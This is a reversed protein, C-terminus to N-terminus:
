CSKVADVEIEFLLDDRCITGGAILVSSSDIQNTLCYDIFYHVHNMDRFYAIARVMNEWGYKENDMISKVVKMTHNIQMLVNGPYLTIGRSDISATGSIILKNSTKHNIEVARSFSSRYETAPCQMPSDIVRILPSSDGTKLLHANMILSRGSLNNIGIGTSAPIIGKFINEEHFFDTRACNLENYWKLIDHVYLWSRALGGYSIGQEELIVKLSQFVLYVQRYNDTNGESILNSAYFLETGFHDVSKIYLDGSLKRSVIAKSDTCILQLSVPHEDSQYLVTLPTLGRSTNWDPRLVAGFSFAMLIELDNKKIYDSLYTLSSEVDDQETTHLNVYYFSHTSYVERIVAMRINGTNCLIEKNILM